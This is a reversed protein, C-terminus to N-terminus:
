KLNSLFRYFRELDLELQDVQIGKEKFMEEALSEKEKYIKSYVVRIIGNGTITKACPSCPFYVTYLTSGALDSRSVESMANREAHEGRCTGTGKTDFDIGHMEKNCFGLELSNKIGSPAGNYGLAIVRKNKVIAAGTNINLCSSRTAALYAHMMFFEDWDPRKSETKHMM